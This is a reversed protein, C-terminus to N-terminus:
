APGVNYDGCPSVFRIPLRSRSRYAEGLHRWDNPWFRINGPDVGTVMVTKRDCDSSGPLPHEQESRGAHWHRMGVVHGFEHALINRIFRRGSPHSVSLPGIRISRGPCRSTPSARASSPTGPFFADAWTYQELTPDYYIKFDVSLKNRSFSFNLPIREQAFGENMEKIVSVAAWEVNGSFQADVRADMFSARDIDFSIDSGPALLDAPGNTADLRFKAPGSSPRELAPNAQCYFNIRMRPIRPCQFPGNSSEVPVSHAQNAGIHGNESIDAAGTLQGGGANGTRSMHNTTKTVPLDQCMCAEDQLRGPHGIHSPHEDVEALDSNSHCYSSGARSAHVAGTCHGRAESLLSEM